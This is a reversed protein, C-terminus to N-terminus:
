MALFGTRLAQLSGVFWILVGFVAARSKSIKFSAYVGIALLVTTWLVFLEFRGALQFLLPNSSDPDMFRSPGIAFAQISTLTAPDLLLGQVGGIAAGLVRPVYSWAAIGISTGFTTEAGVLKGLLWVAVGLLFVAIFIGVGVFYRGISVTVDRMKAISAQAQESAAQGGKAMQAATARDFEAEFAPQMTNFTFFSILATALAVFLLPPWFSKKAWRRFVGVPAFFIDIVDEWFSPEPAPKATVELSETM